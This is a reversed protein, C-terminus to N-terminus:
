MKLENGEERGKKKRGGERGERRRQKKRKTLDFSASRNGNLKVESPFVSYIDNRITLTALMKPTSIKFKSYPNRM